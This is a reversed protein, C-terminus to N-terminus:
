KGEVNEEGAEEPQWRSSEFFKQQSCHEGTGNM